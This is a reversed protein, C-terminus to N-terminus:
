LISLTDAPEGCKLSQYSVVSVKERAADLGAHFLERSHKHVPSTVGWIFAGSPKIIGLIELIEEQPFSDCNRTYGLAPLLPPFNAQKTRTSVLM